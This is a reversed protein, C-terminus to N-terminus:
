KILAPQIRDIKSEGDLLEAVTRREGAIRIGIDVVDIVALCQISVREYSPSCQSLGGIM